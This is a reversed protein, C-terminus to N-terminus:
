AGVYVYINVGLPTCLQMTRRLSKWVIQLIAPPDLFFACRRARPEFLTWRGPTRCKMTACFTIIETTLAFESIFRPPHIGSITWKM